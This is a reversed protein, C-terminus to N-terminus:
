NDMFEKNVISSLMADDTSIIRQRWAFNGTRKFLSPNLRKGTVVLVLYYALERTMAAVYQGDLNPHEWIAPLAKGTVKCRM